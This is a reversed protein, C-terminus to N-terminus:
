FLFLAIRFDTILIENKNENNFNGIEATSAQYICNRVLFKIDNTKCWNKGHM